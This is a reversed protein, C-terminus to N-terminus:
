NIQQWSPNQCYASPCIGNTLIFPASLCKNKGPTFFGFLCYICYLRRYFYQYAAPHLPLLFDSLQRAACIGRHDPGRQSVRRRRHQHRLNFVSQRRHKEAFVHFDAFAFRRVAIFDAATMNGFLLFIIFVRGLLLLFSQRLNQYCLSFLIVVNCLGLKIGPLPVLLSLPLLSEIYSLIVSTALLISFFAISKIDKKM